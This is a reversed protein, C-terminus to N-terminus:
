KRLKREMLIHPIGAEDFPEGITRFRLHRYFGAAQQQAHLRLIVAGQRKAEVVIHQMLLRGLGKSRETTLMRGVRIVRPPTQKTIAQEYILADTYDDYLRAYAVVQGNRRLAIHTATYDIGDEDLYRIEQELVFVNFRAKLIEYLEASSLEAFPKISLTLGKPLKTRAPAPVREDSASTELQKKVKNYLYQRATTCREKSNAPLSGNFQEMEQEVVQLKAKDALIRNIIGCIQGHLSRARKQKGTPPTDSQTLDYEQEHGDRVRHVRNTKKNMKGSVKSGDPRRVTAM